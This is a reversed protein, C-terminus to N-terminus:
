LLLCSLGEALRCHGPFLSRVGEREWSLFPMIHPRPGGPCLVFNVAQRSTPGRLTLSLSWYLGVGEGKWCWSLSLCSPLFNSHAPLGPVCMFNVRLSVSLMHLLVSPSSVRTQSVTVEVFVCARRWHCQSLREGEPPHCLTACNPTYMIAYLLTITHLKFTNLTFSLSCSPTTLLLHHVACHVPYLTYKACYAFHLLTM